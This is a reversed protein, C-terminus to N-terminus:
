VTILWGFGSQCLVICSVARSRLEFDVVFPFKKKYIEWAHDRAHGVPIIHVEGEM